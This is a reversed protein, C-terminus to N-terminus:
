FVQVRNNEGDCVYIVGIDDVAVGRPWNFAGVRDGREGFSTVFLGEPTFVSIRNNGWESVYLVGKNDTTVYYPLDLEGKEQGQKGFAQLFRGDATFVHVSHSDRDVVYVMGTDDCAISCPEKLIVVEGGKKGFTSSVTLDPTLVQIRRNENDVVYVRKSSFTIDIPYTFQLPGSGKTGASALFKGGSTFKQIRHNGSDAVLINGEDDVALGRPNMFQGESSGRTGFSLLKEGSPSFVSICDANQEAVVVEGRQNIAVGWPGKVDEITLIPTNVKEVPSKVVVSFPSGKLHQGEVKICLQHRGRIVPQYSIDYQSRSKREVKCRTVAGTLESVLEVVWIKIPDKFRKDELNLTVMAKEGLAALKLGKGTVQWKSPDPISAVMVQGHNRCATTLDTPTLFKIDAEAIPAVVGGPFLVILEKAQSVTNAKVMLLSEENGPKLTEEMFHICSNLQALMLETSNKQTALGDLKGVAIDDVQSILKTERIQLLEQLRKFAIHVVSKTAEQQMSVEKCRLDLQVLTENATEVQKKMPKLLATIEKSCKSYADELLVSDHKHHKGGKSVCKSCVMM